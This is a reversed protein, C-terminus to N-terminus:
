STYPNLPIPLFHYSWGNNITPRSLDTSPWIAQSTTVRCGSGFISVIRPYCVLWCVHMLFCLRKPAPPPPFWIVSINGRDLKSAAHVINRTGVTFHQVPPRLGSWSIIIPPSYIVVLLLYIEREREKEREKRIYMHTYAMRVTPVYRAWSGWCGGM